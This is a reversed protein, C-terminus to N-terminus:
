EWSQLMYAQASSRVSRCGEKNDTLPRSQLNGIPDLYGCFRFSSSDTPKTWVLKVYCIEFWSASIIKGLQLTTNEDPAMWETALLEVFRDNALLLACGYLFWDTDDETAKLNIVSVSLTSARWTRGDLNPMCAGFYLSVTLSNKGGFGFVVKVAQSVLVHLHRFLFHM